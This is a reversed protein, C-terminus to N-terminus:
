ANQEAIEGVFPLKCPKEKIVCYIGYIMAGLFGLSIVSSGLSVLSAIGWGAISFLLGSVISNLIGFAIAILSVSLGQIAHFRLERNERPETKLFVIPAIVSVLLIPTYCLIAALKYDLAMVQTKPKPAAQQYQHDQEQHMRATRSNNM